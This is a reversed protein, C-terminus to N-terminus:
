LHKIVTEPHLKAYYEAVLRRHCHLPQDESCLLCLPEAEEIDLIQDLNKMLLQEMFVHEYEEWTIEKKKFKKLLDPSPALGPIHIYDIGVLELIYDLDDKKAFGALQSTNQLRIDVVKKIKTTKLRKVFERLSKQSFGITYIVM